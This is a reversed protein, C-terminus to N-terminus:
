AFVDALNVLAEPSDPSKALFKAYVDKAEDFSWLQMPKDLM